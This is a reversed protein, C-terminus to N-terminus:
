DGCGEGREHARVRQADGASAGLSLANYFEDAEERTDTELVMTTNNGVSIQHGASAILDTGMIIHGNVIPLAGNM